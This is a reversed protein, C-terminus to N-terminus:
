SAWFPKTSGGAEHLSCRSTPISCNSDSTKCSSSPLHRSSHRVCRPSLSHHSSLMAGSVMAFYFPFVSYYGAAHERYYVSREMAVMPQVGLSNVIGLFLTSSYLSGVSNVLNMQDQRCIARRHRRLTFGQRPRQRLVFCTPSCISLLTHEHQHELRESSSGPPISRSSTLIISLSHGSAASLASLLKQAM